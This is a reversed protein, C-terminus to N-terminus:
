GVLGGGARSVRGTDRGRGLGRVSTGRPGGGFQASKGPGDGAKRSQSIECFLMEPPTTLVRWNVLGRSHEAGDRLAPVNM